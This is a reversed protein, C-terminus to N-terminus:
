EIGGLVLRRLVHTDTAVQLDARREINVASVIERIYRWGVRM